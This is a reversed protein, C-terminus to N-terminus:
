PAASSAQASGSMAARGSGSCRQAFCASRRASKAPRLRWGVQWGLVSVSSCLRLKGCLWTPRAKRAVVSAQDSFASASCTMGASRSSAAARRARLRPLSMCSASCSLPRMGARNVSSRSASHHRPAASTMGAAQCTAIGAVSCSQCASQPLQISPLAPSGTLCRNYAQVVLRPPVVKPPTVADGNSPTVSFASLRNCAPLREGLSNRFCSTPASPILVPLRNRPDAWSFTPIEIDFTVM